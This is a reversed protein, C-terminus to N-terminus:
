KGPGDDEAEADGATAKAVVGERTLEDKTLVHKLADAMTGGVKLRYYKDNGVLIVDTDNIKVVKAHFVENYSEDKVSVDSYTSDTEVQLRLKRNNYLDWLNAYRTKRAGGGSSECIDTLKYFRSPEVWATSATREIGLGNFIDKKAIDAYNREGDDGPALKDPGWVGRPGLRDPIFALGVPGQRWAASTAIALTRMDMGPLLIKRQDVGPLSLAEISINVDLENRQQQAVQTQPKQITIHRIQHLLGTKYFEKMFNVLNAPTARGTVSFGLKAYVPAAKAAAAGTATVGSKLDPPKPAVTANVFHNLLVLNSLWREYQLNSNEISTPLTLARWKELQPMEAQIENVRATKKDIQDQMALMSDSRKQLPSWFFQHFVFAGGGVVILTLVCIALIRERPNM